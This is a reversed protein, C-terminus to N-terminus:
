VGDEALWPFLSLQVIAPRESLFDLNDLNEKVFKEAAAEAKKREVDLAIMEEGERALYIDRFVNVTHSQRTPEFVESLFTGAQNLSIADRKLCPLWCSCPLLRASKTGYAAIQLPERLVIQAFIDGGHPSDEPIGFCFDRLGRDIKLFAAADAVRIKYYLIFDTDAITRRIPYNFLDHWRRDRLHIVPVTLEGIGATFLEALSKDEYLLTVNGDPHIRVPIRVAPESETDM